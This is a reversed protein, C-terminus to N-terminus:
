KSLKISNRKLSQIVGRLFKPVKGIIPFVTNDFNITANFRNVLMANRREIGHHM